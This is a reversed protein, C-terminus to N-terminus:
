IGRAEIVALCRRNDEGVNSVICHGDKSCLAGNAEFERIFHLYSWTTVIKFPQHRNLPWTALLM